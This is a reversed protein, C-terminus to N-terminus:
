NAGTVTMISRQESKQCIVASERRSFESMIQRQFISVAGSRAAISPALLEKGSTDILGLRNEVQVWAVGCSFDSVQDYRGPVIVKGQSDVFGWKRDMLVARRNDRLYRMVLDGKILGNLAPNVDGGYPNLAAVDYSYGVHALAMGDLMRTVDRYTKPLIYVKGESTVTVYKEGSPLARSLEMALFGGSFTQNNENVYDTYTSKYDHGIGAGQVTAIRRGTEIDYFVKMGNKGQVCFIGEVVDSAMLTEPFDSAPLHIFITRKDVYPSVATLAAPEEAKLPRFPTKNQRTNSLPASTQSSSSQSESVPQPKEKVTDLVKSLGKNVKEVKKSLKNLFGQSFAPPSGCLSLFAILFLIRCHKM